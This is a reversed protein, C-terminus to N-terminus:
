YELLDYMNRVRRGNKHTIDHYIEKAEKIATVPLRHIITKEIVVESEGTKTDIMLYMRSSEGGGFCADLEHKIFDENEM